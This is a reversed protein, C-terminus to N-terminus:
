RLAHKSVGQFNLEVNCGDLTLAAAHRSQVQSQDNPGRCECCEPRIM